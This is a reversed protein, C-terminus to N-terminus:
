PFYRFLPRGSHARVDDKSFYLNEIYLSRVFVSNIYYRLIITAGFHLRRNQPPVSLERSVLEASCDLLIGIYDFSPTSCSYM